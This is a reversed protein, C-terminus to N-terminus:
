REWVREAAAEAAGQSGACLTSCHGQAATHRPPSHRHRPEDGHRWSALSSHHATNLLPAQQAQGTAAIPEMRRMSSPVSVHRAHQSLM